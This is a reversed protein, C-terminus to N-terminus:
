EMDFVVELHPNEEAADSLVKLLSQAYTGLATELAERRYVVLRTPEGRQTLLDYLADLNGGYFPPFSLRRALYDHVTERSTIEGGDLVITVM